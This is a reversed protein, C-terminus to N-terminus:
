WGVFGFGRYLPVKTQGAYEAEVGPFKTVESPDLRSKVTVEVGSTFSVSGVVSM